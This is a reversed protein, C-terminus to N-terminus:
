QLKSPFTDDKNQHDEQQHEGEKTHKSPLCRHLHICCGHLFGLKDLDTGCTEEEPHSHAKGHGQGKHPAAPHEPHCHLQLAATGPHTRFLSKRWPHTLTHSQQQVCALALTSHPINTDQHVFFSPSFPFSQPLM